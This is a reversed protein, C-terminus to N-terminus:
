KTERCVIYTGSITKKVQEILIARSKERQELVRNVLDKFYVGLLSPTISPKQLSKRAPPIRGPPRRPLAYVKRKAGRDLSPIYGRSEMSNSVNSGVRRNLSDNRDTGQSSHGEDGQKSCSPAVVCVFCHSEGSRFGSTLQLRESDSLTLKKIKM